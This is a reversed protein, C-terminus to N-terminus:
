RKGKAKTKTKLGINVLVAANIFFFAGVKDVEILDSLFNLEYIAISSLLLAMVLNRDDKDQCERYIKQGRWLIVILLVMLILLGIYGQEVLTMLFYNHVGSKEPNDSVWTNFATSVHNKYFHYFNGPGYGTLPEESSMRAAAIWRYVREVSSLDHLRYTAEMHDGIEDHLLVKTYDPAFNLYNNEYALFSTLMFIFAVSTAM